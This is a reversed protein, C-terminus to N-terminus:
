DDEDDFFDLGVLGEMFSLIMDFLQALFGAIIDFIQGLGEQNAEQPM